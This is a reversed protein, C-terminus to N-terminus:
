GQRIRYHWVMRKGNHMRSREVEGREILKALASNVKHKPASEDSEDQRVADIVQGLSHWRLPAARLLGAVRRALGTGSSTRAFVLATKRSASAGTLRYSSPQEAQSPGAM